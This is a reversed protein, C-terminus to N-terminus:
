TDTHGAHARVNTCAHVHARAHVLVCVSCTRLACMDVGACPVCAAPACVFAHGGAPAQVSVDICACVRACLAWMCM